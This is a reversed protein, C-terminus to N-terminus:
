QGITSSRREYRYNDKWRGYLQAVKEQYGIRRFGLGEHLRQSAVNEPFIGAQLSWIGNEESSVILSSLLKKGLGQAKYVPDIYISVEAVGRYVYRSSIPSLAAWGLTQDEKRIILRSFEHHTRDWQEWEPSSTEFTALGTAIGKEYILRVSPWDQKTLVEIFTQDGM